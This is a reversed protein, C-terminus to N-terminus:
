SRPRSATLTWPLVALAMALAALAAIWPVRQPWPGLLEVISPQLPEAAGIFGYNVGLALNVPMVVGAYVLAVLCAGRWARWTPRYGAVAVDWVAGVVILGHPLWFFWFGPHAPGELLSPTILAQTSLGIGFCYLLPRAWRAGTMLVISVLVSSVDCLELPLSDGPDFREPFLWLIRGALWAVLNAAGIWWACRGAGPADLRRGLAVAALTVVAIGALALMHTVGFLAFSDTM